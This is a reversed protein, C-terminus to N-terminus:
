RSEPGLSSGLSTMGGRGASLQGWLGERLRSRQAKWPCLLTPRQSLSQKQGLFFTAWGPVPRRRAFEPFSLWLARTCNSGGFHPDTRSEGPSMLQQERGGARGGVGM